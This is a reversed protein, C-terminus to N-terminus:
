VERDSASTVLNPAPLIFLSVKHVHNVKTFIPQRLARGVHFALLFKGGEDRLPNVNLRHCAHLNRSSASSVIEPISILRSENRWSYEFQDDLSQTPSTMYRSGGALRLTM